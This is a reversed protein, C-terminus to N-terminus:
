SGEHELAYALAAAEAQDASIRGNEQKIVSEVQEEPLMAQLDALLHAGEDRAEKYEVPCDKLALLIEFAKEIQGETLYVRAINVLGWYVFYFMNLTQGIRIVQRFTQCAAELDLRAVFCKGVHILCHALDDSEGFESLLKISEQLYEEAMEVRDTKLMVKSLDICINATMRHNGYQYSHQLNDLMLQEARVYDHQMYRAYAFQIRLPLELRVDGKEVLRFGEQCLAEAERVKGIPLYTRALNILSLLYWWSEGAERFVDRGQEHLVASKQYQGQRYYIAALMIQAQAREIWSQSNELLRIADGLHECAQEYQLVYVHHLGLYATIHGLVSIFRCRDETKEFEGQVSKLYEVSETFLTVAEWSRCRMEYFLSLSFLSRHLRDAHLQNSKEAGPQCHTVMWQWGRSLDDIVQAMENFTELQCPSRLAKEWESLCHVYYAAHRDKVQEQEAPDEALKREAYQRVLEHLSFYDQDTRYLLTKNRLSSLVTFNAECIEEAAERGFQGHFVSLRSLISKEQDNLLKWSHDLTARMSRHREPLDRMSVTLFDLNHEIEKAIEECSLLGVWAASLEIGLPMGEMTQCIKRVWQREQERFAFGAWVRRASQLFLSVSSYAEMQELEKSTPVPLGQLEFVWESLLNLRERSTVLLKVQPCRNLIETFVEVGDLLHEANDLVLLARKQHLYRLLQAQHNIPDSFKFDLADAITPVLLSPSNLAALPVFWVGDPFRDKYQNAAEIALRTKGIGGPGAITLLLCQPDCLLGGLASLEPERGIFPTLAKPLNVPPPSFQVAPEFDRSPTRALSALREASLEGRAAQIFVAQAECPIELAQALTRALQRSPRREGAELKRIAFVSCSARQALQEQTLDLEQRRRRLWESFHLPFNEEGSSFSTTRADSTNM